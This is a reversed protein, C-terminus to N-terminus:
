VRFSFSVQLPGMAYNAYAQPPMQSQLQQKPVTALGLVGGTDKLMLLPLLIVNHQGLIAPLVMLTQAMILTTTLFSSSCCVVTVLPTTTTTTM